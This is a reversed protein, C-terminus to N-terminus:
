KRPIIKKIYYMGIANLQTDFKEHRIQSNKYKVEIDIDNETPEDNQIEDVNKSVDGM